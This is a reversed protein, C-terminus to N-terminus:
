KKHHEFSSLVSLGLSWVPVLWMFDTVPGLVFNFLTLTETEIGATVAILSFRVSNWAVGILNGMMLWAIKCWLPGRLPFTLVVSLLNFVLLAVLVSGEFLQAFIYFFFISLTAGILM